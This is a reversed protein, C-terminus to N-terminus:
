ESPCSTSCYEFASIYDLDAVAQCNALGLSNGRYTKQCQAYAAIYATTADSQCKQGQSCMEVMGGGDCYITNVAGDGWGWNIVVCPSYGTKYSVTANIAQAPTTMAAACLLLILPVFTRRM